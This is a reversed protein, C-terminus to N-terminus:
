NSQENKREQLAMIGGKLHSIKKENGFYEM